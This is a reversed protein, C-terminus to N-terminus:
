KLGQFRQLFALGRSAGIAINLRTDWPLPEFNPNKDFLHNELSGMPTFEHVLFFDDDEWCYGLLKVLNPHSLRGLFNLESVTDPRFNNTASKLERKPAVNKSDDSASGSVSGFGDHSFKFQHIYFPHPFTSSKGSYHPGSGSSFCVGM